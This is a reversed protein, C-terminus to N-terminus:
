CHEARRYVLNALSQLESPSPRAIHQEDLTWPAAFDAICSTAACSCDDQVQETPFGDYEFRIRIVKASADAEISAQRLQPHVNAWLGRMLSLSLESPSPNDDTMFHGVSLNLPAQLRAFGAPLRGRSGVTPSDVCASRSM